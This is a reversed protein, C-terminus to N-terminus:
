VQPPEVGYASWGEKVPGYIPPVPLGAQRMLVTMQARHHIQHAILASLVAGRMWQEGYMPVQEALMADTWQAAVAAGVARAGNEYRRVIEALSPVPADQPEAAVDLGAHRMMEGLTLTIHWALRGLSRGGPAVSRAMAPETCARMIKLTSESEYGWSTEFDEIRRFM